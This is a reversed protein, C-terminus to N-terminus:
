NIYKYFAFPGGITSRGQVLKESQFRHLNLHQLLDGIIFLYGGSVLFYGIALLHQRV